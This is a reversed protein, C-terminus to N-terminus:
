LQSNNHILVESAILPRNLLGQEIGDKLRTLTAELGTSGGVAEAGNRLIPNISDRHLLALAARIAADKDTKALETIQIRAHDFTAKLQSTGVVQGRAFQETANKEQIIKGRNRWLFGLVTAGITLVTGGGFMLGAAKNQLGVITEDYQKQKARFERDKRESERHLFSVESDNQYNIKQRPQGLSRSLDVSLGSAVIANRGSPEVGNQAIDQTVDVMADAAQKERELHELDKEPGMGAHFLDFFNCGPLGIAFIAILSFLGIKKKM